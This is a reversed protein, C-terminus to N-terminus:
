ATPTESVHYELAPLYITVCTGRGPDSVVEMEGGYDGVIQRIVSLGLGARGQKTTFFSHFINKLDEPSMGPGDDRVSLYVKGDTGKDVTIIINGGEPMAEYSNFILSVVIAELESKSALTESYASEEISISIPNGHDGIGSGCELDSQCFWVATRVVEGLNVPMCQCTADRKTFRRMRDIIASIDKAASVIRKARDTLYENEQDQLILLQANGTIVQISNNIEHRISRSIFEAVRPGIQLSKHITFKAAERRAFLSTILCSFFSELLEPGPLDPMSVKLRENDFVIIMSSTADEFANFSCAFVEVSADNILANDLFHKVDARSLHVLRPGTSFSPDLWPSDNKSSSRSGFFSWKMNGEAKALTGYSGSVVGEGPFGICILVGSAGLLDAMKSAALHILSGNDGTELGRCIMTAEHLASTLIEKIFHLERNKQTVLAKRRLTAEALQVRSDQDKADLCPV